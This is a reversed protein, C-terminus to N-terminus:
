NLIENSNGQGLGQTRHAGLHFHGKPVVKEEEKKPKPSKVKKVRPM